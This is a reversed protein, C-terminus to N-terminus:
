KFLLSNHTHLFNYSRITGSGTGGRSLLRLYRRRCVDYKLLGSCYSIWMHQHHHRHYFTGSLTVFYNTLFTQLGVRSLEVWGLWWGCKIFLSYLVIIFEQKLTSYRLTSYHVRQYQSQSHHPGMLYIASVTCYLISSNLKMNNELVGGGVGWESQM